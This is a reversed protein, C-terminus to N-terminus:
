QAEIRGLSDRVSSAVLIKAQRLDDLLDRKEQSTLSSGRVQREAKTIEGIQQRFAGSLSALQIKDINNRLYADAKALEGKEVLGEYTEKAATYDKLREFTDDIIGAADKPQFLTGVLPMQSMRKEPLDTEPTPLVVNPVQMLAM